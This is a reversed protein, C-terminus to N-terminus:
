DKLFEVLKSNFYAPNDLILNHGADPVIDFVGDTSKRISNLEDIAMKGAVKNMWDHEGYVMMLKSVKLSDLSDMLPDYALLGSSFLQNFIRISTDTMIGKGFVLQFVYERYAVSPVRRYSNNVYGWCAKAGLPGLWRLAKNQYQLLFKPINRQNSYSPKSPDEIQTEYVKDAQLHNRISYISREVGVPSVLCLRNVNDPYKISYKFSLYGGYSHGVLNIKSLKNELRWKELADVYYDEYHELHKKYKEEDVPQKLRFSKGSVVENFEVRNPKELADASLPLEKSLGNGPLDIAFVDNVSRSLQEFNRFYTMSSAAYGHIMLTPIKVKTAAPNSIHWQNIEGSSMSNEVSIGDDFHLQDMLNQQLRRLSGRSDYNYSDWWQKWSSRKLALEQPQSM